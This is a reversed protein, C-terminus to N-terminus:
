NAPILISFVEVLLFFCAFLFIAIIKFNRSTSKPRSLRYNQPLIKISEEWSLPVDETVTSLLANVTATAIMGIGIVALPGLTIKQHSL